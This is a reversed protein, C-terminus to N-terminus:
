YIVENIISVGLLHKQINALDVISIRGDNNTDAARFADGELEIVGMIHLQVALSDEVTIRGDGNVDGKIIM